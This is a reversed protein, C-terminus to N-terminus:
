FTQSLDLNKVTYKSGDNLTATLSYASCKVSTNNCSKGGAGVPAYAYVKASPNTALTYANGDPDRFAEKDLGQLNASVWASNNLEALTPYYGFQANYSEIELQLARLDTQREVDKSSTQSTKILQGVGLDNLLQIINKAGTPATVKVPDNNEAINLEFTGTETVKGGSDFNGNIKLSNAKMDLALKITGSTTSGAEKNQFGIYFPFTDGGSYTQGFDVYNSSNHKDTFRIKSFLKTHLDVWADATRSDDLNDITKDSGTCSLDSIFLNDKLQKGIKSSKFDNCVATVYPKLNGKNFGIKYHYTKKGDLTEKGVMQKIGVAAQKTNDTFIYKKNTEGISKLLANVDTSSIQTSSNLGKAYQDFFTHDFVYWQGNIGNLTDTLQPAFNGVLTGLGQLGDVKVYIDPTDGTSKLGRAEFSVKLGTASFSGTALSNQGDSKASIVGDGVFPGKLKFFGDEKMGKAIKPKTAYTTLTDYGKATNRLATAWINEPKNPVIYGFYAATAAGGLLLLPLIILLLLKSKGGTKTKQSIAVPATFAPQQDNSATEDSYFVTAQVPATPEGVTSASTIDPATNQVLPNTPVIEHNIPAPAPQASVNHPAVTPGFVQGAQASPVSSTNAPATNALTPSPTSPLSVAPEPPPVSTQSPRDPVPEPPPLSPKTQDM